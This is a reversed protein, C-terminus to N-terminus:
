PNINDVNLDNDKHVNLDDGEFNELKKNIFTDKKFFIFYCILLIFLTLLIYELQIMINNYFNNKLNNKFIQFM